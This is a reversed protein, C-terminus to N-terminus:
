QGANFKLPNFSTDAEAGFVIYFNFGTGAFNRASISTLKESSAGNWELYGSYYEGELDEVENQLVAAVYALCEEGIQETKELVLEEGEFDNKRIEDLIIMRGFLAKEMSDSRNDRYEAEYSAILMCPAHLKSRISEVFESIQMQSNLYADRSLVMRAFHMEDATHNIDVHRTAVERFLAIYEKHKM